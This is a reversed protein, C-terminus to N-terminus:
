ARNDRRWKMVAAPSVEWGAVAMAKVIHDIAYPRNTKPNLVRCEIVAKWESPEDAHMQAFAIKLTDRERHVDTEALAGMVDVTPKPM